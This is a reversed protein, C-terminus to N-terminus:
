DKIYWNIDNNFPNEFQHKLLSKKFVKLGSNEYVAFYKLDPRYTIACYKRDILYSAVKEATWGDKAYFRLTLNAVRIKM